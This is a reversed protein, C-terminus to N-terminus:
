KIGYKKKIEKEAKTWDSIENGDQGKRARDLYIDFARAKIENVLDELRPTTTASKDNTKKVAM